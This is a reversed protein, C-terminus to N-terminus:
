LMLVELNSIRVSALARRLSEGRVRDKRAVDVLASCRCVFGAMRKLIEPMRRHTYYIRRIRNEWVCKIVRDRV